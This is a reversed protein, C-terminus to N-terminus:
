KKHYLIIKRAMFNWVLVVAAAIIKSVMFYLGLKDTFFYMIVETIGLGIVGIVGYVIFEIGSNTNAGSGNFVMLKSMIFNATLGLVFSFVAAILYHIGMLEILFLSGGDVLFAIGGVFIYRFFQILTNDTPAIFLQKINLNLIYTILERM